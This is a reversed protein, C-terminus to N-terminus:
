TSVWYERIYVDGIPLDRPPVLDLYNNARFAAEAYTIRRSQIVWGERRLTTIHRQLSSVGFITIAELITIPNGAAMFEKLAIGKEYKLRSM